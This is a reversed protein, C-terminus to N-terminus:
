DEGACAKAEAATKSEVLCKIQESNNAAQCKSVCFNIGAELKSALEFAKAKRLEERQAPPAKAIEADATAWFNLTFFNRCGEDCKQPDGKGCAAVFSLAVAALWLKNM